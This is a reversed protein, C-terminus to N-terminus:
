QQSKLYYDVNHICTEKDAYYPRAFEILTERLLANLDSLLEEEVMCNTYGLNRLRTGWKKVIEEKEM